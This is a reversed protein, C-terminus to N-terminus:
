NVTETSQNAALRQAEARRSEAEIGAALQEMAATLQHERHHIYSKWTTTVNSHRLIKQITLDLVGLDNLNSRAEVFHTGATGSSWTTEVATSM